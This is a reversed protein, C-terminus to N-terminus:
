PTVPAPSPTRLRLAAPWWVLLLLIALALTFPLLTAAGAGQALAGALWPLAAGGIVSGANM